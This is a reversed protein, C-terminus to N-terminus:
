EFDVIGLVIGCVLMGVMSIGISIYLTNGIKLKKDNVIVLGASSGVFIVIMTLLLGLVFYKLEKASKKKETMKEIIRKHNM